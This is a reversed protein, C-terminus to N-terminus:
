LTVKVFWDNVMRTAECGADEETMNEDSNWLPRLLEDPHVFGM